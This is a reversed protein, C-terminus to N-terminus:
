TDHRPSGATSGLESVADADNEAAEEEDIISIDRLSPRASRRWGEPPPTALRRLLRPGSLMILVAGLPATLLISLVCTTQTLQGWTLEEETGGTEKVKELPQSCLAAQVTAKAMCALAVFIKERLNLRSGIGVVVTILLRLVIATILCALSFSVVDGELDSFKIQTGTIGFLIPEFIMWFIEFATAVPNDEVDLGQSSWSVCSVFAASVCGLPGAGDFGITESGFVALMGGGLLMLVRLPIVYPDDKEPIYKALIGWVIGFGIGGFVSVPGQAIQYALSNQSFMISQVVGFVAVSTADDIGSIAIIVTPIGKSVGYGKARLRLLGPVIVAPSVAAVVSGLLFGWIWPMGLLFHAMVTIVACEALWPVLGLKLVHVALRRLAGPDLDLGARILIIVLAIRRLVSCVEVYPGTIDIVGLNQFAIGVLLMGVLSPLMLLTAVWGGVHATLTLLALKFLQGGPGADHGVVAFTVVWCLLLIIVLAVVRAFRRYSPCIPPPCLRPWFAPQWSPTTEKQHCRKFLLFWWSRQLDDLPHQQKEYYASSGTATSFKKSPLPLGDNYLFPPKGNEDRHIPPPSPLPSRSALGHSYHGLHPFGDLPPPPPSGPPPPPPTLPNHLISKRREHPESVSSIRRLRPPDHENAVVPDSAISVRRHRAETGGPSPSRDRAPPPVPLTSSGPPQQNPDSGADGGDEDGEVVLQMMLGYPTMKRQRPAQM